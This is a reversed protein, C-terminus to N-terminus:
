ITPEEDELIGKNLLEAEKDDFAKIVQEYDFVDATIDEKTKEDFVTPMNKDLYYEFFRRYRNLQEVNNIYNVNLGVLKMFSNEFEISLRYTEDSKWNKNYELFWQKMTDVYEDANERGYYKVLITQITSFSIKGNEAYNITDYGLLFVLKEYANLNTLYGICDEKTYEITSNGDKGSVSWFGYVDSTYPNVFRQHFTAGGEIVLLYLEENNDFFDTESIIKNQNCHGDIEHATKQIDNEREQKTANEKKKAIIRVTLNGNKDIETTGFAEGNNLRRKGEESEEDVFEFSYIKKISNIFNNNIYDEISPMDIYKEQWLGYNKCLGEFVDKLLYNAEEPFNKEEIVNNFNALLRNYEEETLESSRELDFKGLEEMRQIFNEEYDISNQITDEETTLNEETHYETETMQQVYSNGTTKELEQVEEKIARCGSFTSVALASVAVIKLLMKLKTIISNNEISMHKHTPECIINEYM